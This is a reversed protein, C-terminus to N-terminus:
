RVRLWLPRDRSVAVRGRVKEFAHRLTLLDVRETPLYEPNWWVPDYWRVLGGKGGELTSDYAHGPPFVEVRACGEVLAKMESAFWVSGDAGYGIYLPTIGMHDRIVFFADATEDYLVFSFMGRLLNPFDRGHKLYLPIVM